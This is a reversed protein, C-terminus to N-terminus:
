FAVTLGLRIPFAFVSTGNASLHNGFFYIFRLPVELTLSARTDDRKFFWSFGPGIEANIGANASQNNIRGEFIYTWGLGGLMHFELGNAWQSIRLVAELTSGVSHTWEQGNLRFYQYEFPMQIGWMSGPIDYGLLLWGGVGPLFKVRDSAGGPVTLRNDFSFQPITLLGGGMYIGDHGRADASRPMGMVALLTLALVVVAFRIKM